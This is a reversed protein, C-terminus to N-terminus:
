NKMFPFQFNYAIQLTKLRLYSSNVEYLASSAYNNTANAWTARPYAADQSPNDPTWTNEYQYLLLGGTTNDANSTFPIRFGEELMRSVDWAGTWQLSVDFDKWTFGMNLGAIYKPDDTYGLERTMDNADIKGNGDLDIYVCDGPRLDVGHDPFPTGFTQEYLKPTNEDYYRWFQYLSRAGIRHGKEYQYGNSM